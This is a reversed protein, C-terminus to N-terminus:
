NDLTLAYNMGPIEVDFGKQILKEAFRTQVDYEGHVLFLKKIKNQDQNSIFRCLDNYDGHASMGGMKGIEAKVNLDRGYIDVQKVGNMLKGALSFPSAHGVMLITNKSDEITNKIHHKVRGAEAMGSSSIIVCPENFFNIQKSEDVTEIYKLGKFKFPDKDHLLVDQLVPNFNEPHNEIVQTAELSMPSDVFYTIAPLKNKNELQNLMYLLQQTRGVSFAPIVLKGKKELCTKIIWGLFVEASDKVEEHLKDGYTSELILYDAQPCEEPSKLIADAYRGVDGSFTIRTTNEDELLQLNVAASGIIHGADTFLLKIEDDISFWKDYEVTSFLELCNTVDETSFMPEFLPLGKKLRKRNIYKTDAQQIEASDILLVKCLDKTGSTCFVTGRFGEKYLKPILGSHDIHAHSLVLYNISAPHFGFHSNLEDTQRGMGQFMGCDLLLKKGNKLSILHKSGTVTRAACHFSIQM